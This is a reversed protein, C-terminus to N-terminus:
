AVREASPAVVKYMVGNINKQLFFFMKNDFISLKITGKYVIIAIIFLFLIKYILM